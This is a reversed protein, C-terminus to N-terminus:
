QSTFNLFRQLFITREEETDLISYNGIARQLSLYDIMFQYKANTANVKTGLLANQADVLTIIDVQGSKYFDQVIRINGEAATAANQTLRINNFSSNVIEIQSRVQLELLNLLDSKQDQLQLLGVKSKQSQYRRSNGSVLPISLNFAANWTPINNNVEFGPIPPPEGPNVIDLTYDYSGGFAITPIYFARNNSKLLREQAKIALEIQNLEPLNKRSEEVMFDALLNLTNRDRIFSLFNDDLEAIFADADESGSVSFSENIPRNLSENLQFGVAELQARAQYLDAKALNLETTWRYVDNSSSYGVKEKDQAIKLNQNIAKINENQLEVLALAQQYNFYRQSVELIVDLESQKLGAEQSRKLMGQIAINALAPESLILQSFSANATWNFSGRSGFSSNVTNSDLFFGTSELSLQPLYNSRALEVEKQSLEVEASQVKYGLNNQLGEAIASRLTMSRESSKENINVLIANDLLSWEPYIEIENAVKMNVQLQNSFTEIDVLFDKPNLGDTIKEVNLAIRRPIKILNDSTSFAAYAGLDLLPTGILSFTPLKEGNIKEFFDAIEAPSYSSLPSLIYVGEVDPKFKSITEALTPETPIWQLDASIANLSDKIPLDLDLIAPTGVVAIRSCNCIDMLVNLGATINFPSNIYSFNDIGSTKSNTGSPESLLLAALSPIPYVELDSLVRTTLIGSAILVDPTKETYVSKIEDEINQANEGAFIFDFNLEFESGLLSSIEAAIENEFRHDEQDNDDSIITITFDQANANFTLFLFLLINHGFRM